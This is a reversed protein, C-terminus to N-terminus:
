KSVLTASIYHRRANQAPIRCAILRVTNVAVGHTAHTHTHHLKVGFTFRLVASMAAHVTKDM